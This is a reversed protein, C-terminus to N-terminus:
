RTLRHDRLFESNASLESNVQELGEREILTKRGSFLNTGLGAREDALTIGLAALSTPFLDFPAYDRNLSVEPGPAPQAPNIFVNAVTREFSTPWGAFFKTDMSRHDGTILITTNDWWPQDQCWRVFKVVEAQSYFIVNAYQQDFPKRTMNPSVFGDPFHTDANELIFYFPKDQEALRTLESKAFEYLKDDEYGWWVRYDEPILNRRQAERYDFITFDGHRRYYDGLGGWEADAGLMIETNYGHDHLIDGVTRFDPYTMAEAQGGYPHSQMPVGSGMNVMAAVSHGSGYTQHPGGRLETHSFTVGEATLRDLDPMLNDPGYGGRDEGYYSNEISEMYIHIFNRKKAPFKLRSDDPSVYHREVYASSTFQTAIAQGLPVAHFGYATAALTAVLGAAALRRRTHGARRPTTSNRREIDSHVLGLCAGVVVSAIVPLYLLNFLRLDTERTAQGNGEFVLFILQDHTMHGFFTSLWWPGFFLLGGILGLAAGLIAWAGDRWSWRFPRAHFVRRALYAAGLALAEGGILVLTWAAYFLPRHDGGYLQPSPRGFLVLACVAVQALGVLALSRALRRRLPGSRFVLLGAAVGALGVLVQITVTM